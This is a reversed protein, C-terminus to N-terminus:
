PHCIRHYAKLSAAGIFAKFPHPLLRFIITLAILLYPM